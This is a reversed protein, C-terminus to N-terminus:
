GTGGSVDLIGRETNSCWVLLAPSVNRRKLTMQMKWLMLANRRIIMDPFTWQKETKQQTMTSICMMTHLDALASGEMRPRLGGKVLKSAAFSTERRTLRKATTLTIMEM